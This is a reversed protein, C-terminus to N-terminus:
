KKKGGKADKKDGGKGEVKTAVQKYTVTVKDGAKIADKGATGGDTYFRWEEKGLDLTFSDTSVEKVVGTKQYSAAAAAWGLAAGLIATTALVALSKMRM